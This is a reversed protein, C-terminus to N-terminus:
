TVYILNLASRVSGTQLNATLLILTNRRRPYPESIVTQRERM